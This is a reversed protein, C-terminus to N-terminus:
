AELLYGKGYVSQIRSAGIKKRLRLICMDVTRTNGASQFGWVEHLLRERSFVIGPHDQMIQFLEFETRTLESEMGHDRIIASSNRSKEAM